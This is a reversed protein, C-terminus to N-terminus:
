TGFVPQWWDDACEGLRDALSAGQCLTIRTWGDSKRDFKSAGFFALKCRLMDVPLCSKAILNDHIEAYPYRSSLTIREVVPAYDPHRTLFASVPETRAPLDAYAAAVRRAIDL